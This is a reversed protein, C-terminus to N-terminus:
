AGGRAGGHGGRGSGDPCADLIVFNRGAYVLGLGAHDTALGGPYLATLFVGAFQHSACLGRLRSTAMRVHSADELNWPQNLPRYAARLAIPQERPNAFIAPVFVDRLALQTGISTIPPSWVRQWGLTSLTTGYAMLMLSGAPVTAHRRFEAFVVGAHYWCVTLVLTRAGVAGLVAWLTPWGVRIKVSAALLVLPLVALRADLLSGSGLREPAALTLLVLLGVAVAEPLGIRSRGLCAAVCVLLALLSSADQAVGGGLLIEAFVLLKHEFVGVPGRGAYDVAGGDGASMLLLLLTVTAAAVLSSAAESLRARASGGNSRLRCLDFGALVVVWAAGAVAHTFVLVAAGSVAVALRRWARACSLWWALLALLLGLGLMYSVLGWFLANDYFLLVAFMPKIPGSADLARALACFGGVFVLYTVLVFAQGAAEPSLGLRAFGTLGLDLVANPVVFGTLRYFRMWFADHQLLRLVIHARAVHNPWDQLPTPQTLLIPIAGSGAVLGSLIERSRRM